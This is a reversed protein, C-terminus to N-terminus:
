EFLRNTGPAIDRDIMTKAICQHTIVISRNSCVGLKEITWFEAAIGILVQHNCIQMALISGRRRVRNDGYGVICQAKDNAM